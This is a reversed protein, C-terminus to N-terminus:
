RLTAIFPVPTVYFTKTLKRSIEPVIKSVVTGPYSEFPRLIGLSSRIFSPGSVDRDSGQEHGALEPRHILCIILFYECDKRKGEYVWGQTKNSIGNPTESGIEVNGWSRDKVNPSNETASVKSAIAKQLRWGDMSFNFSVSVLAVLRQNASVM